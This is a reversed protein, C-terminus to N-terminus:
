AKDESEPVTQVNVDDITWIDGVFESFAELVAIVDNREVPLGVYMDDVVKKDVSAKDAIIVLEDYDLEHEKCLDYFSPKVSPRQTKKTGNLSSM